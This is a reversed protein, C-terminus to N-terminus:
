RITDPLWICMEKQSERLGCNGDTSPVQLEKSKERNM